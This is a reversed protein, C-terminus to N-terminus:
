QDSPTGDEPDLKTQSPPHPPKSDMPQADDSKQDESPPSLSVHFLELRDVLQRFERTYKNIEEPGLNHQENDPTRGLLKSVFDWRPPRLRHPTFEVTVTGDQNQIAGILDYDVVYHALKNRNLNAAHLLDRIEPWEKRQKKFYRPALYYQAMKDVMRHRAEFSETSYYAVSSVDSIPANLMRLFLKFHVDEVRQWTVLALGIHYCLNHFNDAAETDSSTM